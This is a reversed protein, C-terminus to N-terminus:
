RSRPVEGFWIEFFTACEACRCISKEEQHNGDASITQLRRFIRWEALHLKAELKKKDSKLLAEQYPTQWEPYKLKSM